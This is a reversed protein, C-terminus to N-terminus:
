GVIRAAMGEPVRVYDFVRRGEEDTHWKVEILGRPHPVAGEAATVDDAQVRIVVEGADGERLRVGLVHRSLFYTPCASWAHCLSQNLDYYEPAQTLGQQLFWGWGQRMMREAVDTLGLEYLGEFIYFSFSPSVYVGDEPGYGNVFVSRLARRVHRRAPEEQEPTLVGARAAFLSAHASHTGRALTDAYCGRGEDWFADRISRELVGIRRRLESEDATRGIADALAAARRLAILYTCSFVCHVGTNDMYGPVIALDGHFGGYHAKIGRKKDWDADLLLDGREDALEHFWALNRLIPEWYRSILEKDGTHAYYTEFGELANLAFDAITYDGENPYVARFKGTEDPSQGILELSRRMLARDGFAALNTHYQIVTDRIYQGRERTVCDTYADEMNTAQTRVGMEWIRELLPDSCRFSGLRTTPYSASKLEIRKLTVDGRAGRVTLQLYRFGKPQALRWDLTGRREDGTARDGLGYWHYHRIHKGDENLHEGYTMDIAAGGAGEWVTRPYVLRTAGLDLLLSFGHPYDALRFTRPSELDEAGITEFPEGYGDWGSSMTPSWGTEGQGVDIWGGAEALEDYPAYPLPKGGLLAEYREPTLAPSRRFMADSGDAEKASNAANASLHYGGDAPLALYHHIADQLAEIRAFYHNWGRRLAFRRNMRMSKDNSHVGGDVPVGNIWVSQYHVGATVIRDEPSYIWTMVAMYPSLREPEHIERVHPMEVSFSYVREAAALPLVQLVREVAVPEGSPYPISRPEPPGWASSDALPEALPWAADDYASETWAPDDLRQDYRDAAKLFLSAKAAYRHAEARTAKWAAMGTALAVREGDGGAIEGWAVFGAQSRITMFTKHGVYNAQVAIANRGPVLLAGIDHTDYTPHKPDFRAPGTGVYEGNVYLQYTTDAFLHLTARAPVGTIDFTLRFRGYLDRGKGERDYWVAQAPWDGGIPGGNEHKM